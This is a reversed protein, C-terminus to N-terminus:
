HSDNKNRLALGLVVGFRSQENDQVMNPFKEFSFNKFPEVLVVNNKFKNSLFESIMPIEQGDGSLYVNNMKFEVHSAVFFEITRDIEKILSSCRDNIIENRQKDNALRSLYVEGIPINRNFISVGQSIVNINSSTAGVYIILDNGSTSCGYNFEILNQLALFDIDVVVPNLKAASFVELYQNIDKKKVAAILVDMSGTDPYVGVIQYDLKVDKLDFSIFREVEWILQESLEEKSMIPLTIKRIIALQGPIGFCINKQRVKNDKIIKKITDVVNYFNIIQGDVISNEPLPSYALSSIKRKKNKNKFQCVKISCSSIDVGLLNNNWLM